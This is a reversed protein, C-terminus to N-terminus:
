DEYVRCEDADPNDGCFKELPDVAKENAKKHSEAASIEEVQPSHPDTNQTLSPRGLRQLSRGRGGKAPPLLRAHRM